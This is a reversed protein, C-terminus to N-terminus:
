LKTLVRKSLFLSLSNKFKQLNWSQPLLWDSDPKAILRANNYAMEMTLCTHGFYQKNEANRTLVLALDPKDPNTFYLPILLQVKDDYYQPVAIKYNADIKKKTREIAANFLEFKMFSNRISEPIRQVNEKKGFIHGYQPVIDYNANFILDEICSFYNARKPLNLIGKITLLSETLFSDFHWERPDDPNKNVTLYAFIREYDKTYLGTNFILFRGEEIIFIKNKNEIDKANEWDCHLKSFTYNIYNHLIPHTLKNKTIGAQEEEQYELQEDDLQEVDLRDELQDELQDEGEEQHSKLEIPAGWDEDCIRALYDIKKGFGSRDAFDFLKM